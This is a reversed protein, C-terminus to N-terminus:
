RVLLWAFSYGASALGGLVALTIIAIGGAHLVDRIKAARRARKYARHTEVVKASSEELIETEYRRLKPESWDFGLGALDSPEKGLREALHKRIPSLRRKFAIRDSDCIHFEAGIAEECTACYSYM